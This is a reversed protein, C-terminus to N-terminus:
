PLTVKVKRGSPTTVFYVGGGIPASDEEDSPASSTIERNEDEEPGNGGDYPDASTQEPEEGWAQSDDQEVEQVDENAAVPAAPAAAAASRAALSSKASRIASAPAKALPIGKGTAPALKLPAKLLAAAKADGAKAKKNLKKATKTLASAATLAVGAGPVMMSALPKAAKVMAKVVKSKAVKKAANKLKRGIKGGVHVSEAGVQEVFDALPVRSTFITPTPQTPVLLQVEAYGDKVRSRTKVGAAQLNHNIAGIIDM